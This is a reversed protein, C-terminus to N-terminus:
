EGSVADSIALETYKAFLKKEDNSWQKELGKLAEEYNGLKIHCTRKLAQLDKSLQAPNM